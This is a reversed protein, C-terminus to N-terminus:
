EDLSNKNQFIAHRNFENEIKCPIEANAFEKVEERSYVEVM